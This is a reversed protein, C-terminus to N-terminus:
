RASPGEPKLGIFRAPQNEIARVKAGFQVVPRPFRPRLDEESVLRDAESGPVDLGATGSGDLRHLSPHDDDGCPNLRVELLGRIKGCRWAGEDAHLRDHFVLSLLLGGNSGEEARLRSRPEEAPGDGGLFASGPDAEGGRWPDIRIGEKIAVQGPPEFPPADQRSDASSQREMREGLRVGVPEQEDAVGGTLELREGSSAEVGTRDTGADGPPDGGLRRPRVPGSRFVKSAIRGVAIPRDSVLDPEAKCRTSQQLGKGVLRDVIGKRSGVM